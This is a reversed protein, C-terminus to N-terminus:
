TGVDQTAPFNPGEETDVRAPIWTASYVHLEGYGIRQPSALAQDTAKKNYVVRRQNEAIRRIVVKEDVSAGLPQGIVDFDATLWSRLSLTKTM